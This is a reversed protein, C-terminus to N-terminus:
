QDDERWAGAGVGGRGVDGAGRGPQGAVPPQPLGPVSPLAPPAMLPHEDAMKPRPQFVPFARAALDIADTAPSLQFLRLEPYSEMLNEYLSTSKYPLDGVRDGDADFGAYDSWYNGRGAVSWANGKLEGQGAIAVQAGNEQFVNDTFTNRQVLPLYDLGIDNYALLNNEFRVAAEPNLPSNDNYVGVRNSVMSNGEVLVNNVDKLALGYGSQGRNNYLLNNRVTYGDGYMLYIGVSNDRLVNNEAM